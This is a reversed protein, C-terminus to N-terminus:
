ERTMGLRQLQELPSGTEKLFEAVYGKLRRVVDPRETVLNHRQAYDTPLHYLATASSGRAVFAPYRGDSYPGTVKVGGWAAAPPLPSYWYLPENSEGPPWCFLTWEGDTVNISEGFRGYCAYSRIPRDDGRTMPLLSRGQGDEPIPLGMAELITPFLDITQVLQSIRRRPQAQDPHYIILPIHAMEQYLNSDGIASWPKMIVGHEGLMEGHDTTFIIMTKDMLGLQELKDLFLGIWRDVMTLEGAYLARVQFLDEESLQCEGVEPWFVPDGRGQPNYLRNYPYPPDWPEHPDFCDVLLFFDKLTHNREVWDMASQLVTPGFYDRETKRRGYRNRIYPDLFPKQRLKEVPAGYDLPIGPDTIWRDSEQGRIFEFGTFNFHYNGAGRSWLHYHDTILMSPKSAAALIGPLDYDTHELPGWGRRPFEFKGTFLDRRAPLCPFSGIYCNEFVTSRAALRNLSPTQIWPNGMFGLHDRRVSDMLLMIVNM